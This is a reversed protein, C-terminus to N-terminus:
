TILGPAVCSIMWGTSPDDYFRNLFPRRHANQVGMGFNDTEATSQLPIGAAMSKKSVM